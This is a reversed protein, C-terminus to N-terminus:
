NKKYNGDEIKNQQMLGKLYYSINKVFSKYKLMELRNINMSNDMM